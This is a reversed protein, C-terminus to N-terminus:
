FSIGHSGTGTPIEDETEEAERIAREWANEHQINEIRYECSLLHNESESLNRKCTGLSLYLYAAYAALLSLFVWASKNILSFM